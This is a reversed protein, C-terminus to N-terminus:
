RAPRAECRETYLRAVETMLQELERGAPRNASRKVQYETWFDGFSIIGLTAVRKGGSSDRVSFLRIDDSKCQGAFNDACNHMALAEDILGAGSEIPV